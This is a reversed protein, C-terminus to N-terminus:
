SKKKRLASIFTQGDQHTVITLFVGGNIRDVHWQEHSVPQQEDGVTCSTTVNLTHSTPEVTIEKIDCGVEDQGYSKGDFYLPVDDNDSSVYAGVELLFSKPHWDGNDNCVLFVECGQEEPHREQMAIRAVFDDPLFDVSLKGQGILEEQEYTLHGPIIPRAAAEKESKENSPTVLVVWIHGNPLLQFIMKVKSESSGSCNGHVSYVNRNMQQVKTFDCRADLFRFNRKGLTMTWDLLHSSCHHRKYENENGDKSVLCWQGVMENPLSKGETDSSSPAATFAMAPSIMLLLAVVLFTKM